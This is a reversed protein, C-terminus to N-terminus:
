FDVSVSAAVTRPAGLHATMNGTNAGTLNSPGVTSWYHEDNLNNVALRLTTAKGMVQTSYRAGLDFVSYSPTWFLNTDDGPRKATYQWDASAVLGPVAAIQYEFLLNSKVKPMGVYQTNNTLPNGTDQMKPDLLTIGGYVVLHKCLEGVASVEIGKNLQKGSIKYTNDTPDVLAFPRQLQFVALSLDLKSLALKVGAEVQKSRYPALGTNANASGAPAIDGQQLSSAYTLYTTLNDRPKFILSPM